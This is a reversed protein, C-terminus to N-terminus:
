KVIKKGNVIYIGQPLGQIAENATIKGNFKRLTRGDITTVTTAVPTSTRDAVVTNIGTAYESTVDLVKYHGNNDKETTVIFYSTQKVNQVNETQQSGKNTNFVFNVYDDNSNMTYNLTYWQKGGQTTTTTINDGPWSTATPKHSGDGGWSWVNMSQWGVQDANVNVSISYPKFSKVSYQRETQGWVRGNYLLATKMTYSGEPLSLTTGNEITLSSATPTTNDITYVIKAGETETIARLTVRTDDYYTGSPLSPWATEQSKEIFYRYNKGEASLAWNGTTPTYDAASSGVAALLKGRTGTSTLVYRGVYNENQTWSSQNNIGTLNRLLIMNKIEPKYALWHQLFVCPTGPMALLYANAALTDKRIPDQPNDSRTQTDHNEIFTVAYRSYAQDTALGGNGLKSWNSNNAADRIAYRMPFDFAASQIANNVKTGNIWNIVLQKNGDFYEGISFQPKAADNYLATFSASYGKVMDYRVGAYGLDNLLFNLYAKVNNQVNLSKHDLDRAFDVGDGTDYNQSLQYGNQQAWQATKGSCDDKCIDTPLLQYTTGNYTEKPFDVWNTLTKRHNIVVDAITGLGKQKFTQIMSRLEHESGFASKYNDFWYLPDYGMSESGCNGSQPIWILKFYQSLEDAQSELNKWNTADYSNWYFGQLMVGEYAAPWGQAMMITSTALTALLTSLKKHRM